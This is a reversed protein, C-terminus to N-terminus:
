VLGALVAKKFLTEPSWTENSIDLSADVDVNFNTGFMQDHLNRVDTIVFLPVYKWISFTTALRPLLCTLILKGTYAKELQERGMQRLGNLVSDANPLKSRYFYPWWRKYSVETPCKYPPDHPETPQKTGLLEAGM